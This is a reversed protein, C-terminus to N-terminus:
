KILCKPVGRRRGIRTQVQGAPDAASGTARERGLLHTLPGIRQGLPDQLKPRAPYPLDPAFRSPKQPPQGGLTPLIQGSLKGAFRQAPQAVHHGLARAEASLYM